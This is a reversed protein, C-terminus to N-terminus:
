KALQIRELDFWDERVEGTHMAYEVQFRQGRLSNFQGTVTGVVSQEALALISVKAMLAFKYEVTQM